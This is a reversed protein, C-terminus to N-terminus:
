EQRESSTLSLPSLLVPPKPANGGAREITLDEFLMAPVVYAILDDVNLLGANLLSGSSGEETMLFREKSVSLVDKFSATSLDTIEADRVLEKHGDPYVRYAKTGIKGSLRDFEYGYELGRAKLLEIMAAIQEEPTATKTSDVILNGPLIGRARQSGTSTPMRKAPVRSTLLTELIGNKVLVVKKPPVGEEDFPYGGKLRKGDLEDIQPDNTVTLFDPLVRSGVKKSLNATPGTLLNSLLSSLESGEGASSHPHESLVNGFERAFLQPAAIGTVLVPGSYRKATKGHMRLSLRDFVDKSDQQLSASSGLEELTRGHQSSSDSLTEGSALQVSASAHFSFFSGQKLYSTGESNLFHETTDTHVLRAESTAVSPLTRFIASADRVLKEADAVKMQELPKVDSEQRAPEKSFSPTHETRNTNQEAAKKASLQQVARKYAADTAIWIKRRLESYDDDIPLSVSLSQLMSLLADASPSPGNTNDFDYNGVRLSVSLTRTRSKTSSTLAGFTASVAQEDSDVIKYSIFYPGDASELRLNKMSRAMEDHMARTETDSQQALLSTTACFALLALPLYRIPAIM